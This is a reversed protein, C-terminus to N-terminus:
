AIGTIKKEPLREKLRGIYRGTEKIVVVPRGENLIKLAYSRWQGAPFGYLAGRKNEKLRKLRSLTATEM